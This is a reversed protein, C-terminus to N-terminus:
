NRSARFKELASMEDLSKKPAEIPKAVSNNAITELLSFMQKSVEKMAAIENSISKFQAEGDAKIAAMQQPLVKMEEPLMDEKPSSLEVIAGGLTQLVTGDELQYEGDAAPDTGILVTGGVALNSISLVVGDKTKYDTAMKVPEVAPEAKPAPEIAPLTNPDAAGFLVSKIKEIAEKYM